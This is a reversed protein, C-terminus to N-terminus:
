GSGVVSPRGSSDAGEPRAAGDGTAGGGLRQGFRATIELALSELEAREEDELAKVRDSIPWPSLVAASEPRPRELIDVYASLYGPLEGGLRRLERWQERAEPLRRHVSFYRVLEIRARRNTPSEEVIHRLAALQGKERRFFWDFTALWARADHALAPALAEAREFYRRADEFDSSATKLEGLATWAEVLARRGEARAARLEGRRWPRDARDAARRLAEFLALGDERRPDHISEGPATRTSPTADTAVCGTTALLVMLFGPLFGRGIVACGQPVRQTMPKM